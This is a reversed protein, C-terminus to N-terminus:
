INENVQPKERRRDRRRGPFWLCFEIVLAYNRKRIEMRACSINVTLISVTTNIHDGEHRAWKGWGLSEVGNTIWEVININVQVHVHVNYKTM